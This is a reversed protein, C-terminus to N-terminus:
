KELESILIDASKSWSFRKVNDNGSSILKARLIDSGSMMNLKEILDNEDYPDIYLVSDGLVEPLSAANSSIVPCQYYQAELPPIGFGEYYSPFIFALANKYLCALEEDGVRGLYDVNNELNVGHQNSFNKNEGGVIKLRIDPINATTFASVLFPFNKHPSISSVALFYPANFDEPIDSNYLGDSLLFPSVGCPMVVVEKNAKFFFEIEKKSFDSVTFIKKSRIFIIPIFLKYSYLFSKSFNEPYRFFSMDHIVTFNGKFLVPATNCFNVLRKIKNKMLFIPLVIQEWIHGQFGRLVKIPLDYVLYEEKLGEPALIIFEINKNKLQKCIELAYRQVGTISQSLFRGNIYIVDM